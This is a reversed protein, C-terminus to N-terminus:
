LRKKKKFIMTDSGNFHPEIWRGERKRYSYEQKLVVRGLPLFIDSDQRFTFTTNFFDELVKYEWDTM